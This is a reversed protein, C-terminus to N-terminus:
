SRYRRSNSALIANPDEVTRDLLDFVAVKTAEAEVVAEVVLQRDALQDYDTTFAMRGLAADRGDATLKGHRLARALSSEVRRGGAALSEGSAEVVVVDLKARAAVEAIGSGMLGCGVVGM